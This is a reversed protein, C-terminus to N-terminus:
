KIQHQDFESMLSKHLNRGSGQKWIELKNKVLGLIVEEQLANHEVTKLQKYYAQKTKNFFSCM